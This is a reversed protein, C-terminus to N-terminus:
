GRHDEAVDVQGSLRRWIHAWSMGLSLVAAILALAVYSLVDNSASLWGQDFLLWTFTGFFAGALLIGLVGLSDLTAHLFLIWGILLVVGVFALPANVSPLTNMLWHAYSWGTPNWTAFVLVLSMLFRILFGLM